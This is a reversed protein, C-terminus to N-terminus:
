KVNERVPEGWPDLETVPLTEGKPGKVAQLQPLVKAKDGVIVVYVAHDLHRKAVREVDAITVKSLRDPLTRLEDEKYGYIFLDAAMSGLEMVSEMRGPLAMLISERADNLESETVSEAQIKDFETLLEAVAAGTKDAVMNGGVTFVGSQHRMSFRSRAGYTYAHKERLNMNVRSSFSGGLIVNMLALADRDATTANPGELALAVFSQTAQPKDVVVIKRGAGNSLTSGSLDPLTRPSAAPVTAFAGELMPTIAQRTVDGAVLFAVSERTVAARYAQALQDVKLAEIQMPSGGIANRYAGHSFVSHAIANSAMAPLSDKEARASALRRVRLRDFESTSFTPRLAVEALLDLGKGLQDRTVKIFVGMSDWDAWTGHQAGIAEFADSLQLANYKKTGQELMAAAFSRAGPVANELCVGGKAPCELEVGNHRSVLRVSVIPLDHREILYVKIGNKLTFVEPVPANSAVADGPKPASSRYDGTDKLTQSLETPVAAADVPSPIETTLPPVPTLPKPADGCAALSFTVISTVIARKM